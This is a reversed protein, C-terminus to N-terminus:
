RHTDENILKRYLEAYAHIMADASFCSKVFNRGYSGMKEREAREYLKGIAESLNKEDGPRVLFGNKGDEVLDRCGHVDSLIIPKGAAMAEIPALPMGEWRTSLVFIDAAMLLMPIDTRMGLFKVPLANEQAQTELRNREPGDGAILCAINTNKLLRMARLLTAVDKQEMLRCITLIIIKNQEIALAARLMTRDTQAPNHEFPALDIGNRILYTTEPRSLRSTILFDKDEKGVAVIADVFRNSIREFTGMFMRVLWSRHVFHIGHYTYVTRADTGLMAIKMLIGARTGHAHVIHSSNICERLFSIQGLFSNQRPILVPIGAKRIEESAPGEEPFFAFIDYAEALGITLANAVVAGGGIASSPNVILVKEKAM